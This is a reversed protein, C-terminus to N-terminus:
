KLYETHQLKLFDRVILHPKMLDMFERFTNEPTAATTDLVFKRRILSRTYEQEFRELIREIDEAKILCHEHPDEKKRHLIKEPSTKLLVLVMDTMVRMVEADLHRAMAQRDAFEEPGGYGYYIPAYVADGYYWNTLLHHNDTYIVNQFHYYNLYRSFKELLAPKMELIQEADADAEGISSSSFPLVFHDHWGFQHMPLPDGMEETILKAIRHALTTKGTYECGVLILRM